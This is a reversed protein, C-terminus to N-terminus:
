ACVSLGAGKDPVRGPVQTPGGSVLAARVTEHTTVTLGEAQFVPVGVFQRTPVGADGYLQLAPSVRWCPIRQRPLLPCDVRTCGCKARILGDKPWLCLKYRKCRVRAATGM